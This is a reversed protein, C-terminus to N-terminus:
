TIIGTIEDKNIKYCDDEIEANMLDDGKKLDREKYALAAHCYNADVVAVGTLCTM